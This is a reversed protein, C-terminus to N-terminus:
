TFRPKQRFVVQTNSSNYGLAYNCEAKQTSGSQFRFDETGIPRHCPKAQSKAVADCRSEILGNVRLQYALRAVNQVGCEIEAHELRPQECDLRLQPEHRVLRRGSGGKDLIWSRSAVEHCSKM